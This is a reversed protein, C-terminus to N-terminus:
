ASPGALAYAARRSGTLRRWLRRSASTDGPEPHASGLAARREAHRARLERERQQESARLAHLVLASYTADM